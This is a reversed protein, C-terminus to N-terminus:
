KQLVKDRALTKALPRRPPYPVFFRRMFNQFAVSRSRGWPLAHSEQLTCASLMKLFSARDKRITDLFVDVKTRFLVKLMDAFTEDMDKAKQQSRGFPLTGLDMEVITVGM